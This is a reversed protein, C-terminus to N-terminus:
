QNEPLLISFKGSSSMSASVRIVIEIKDPGQNREKFVPTIDPYIVLWVKAYIPGRVKGVYALTDFNPAVITPVHTYALDMYRGRQGMLIFFVGFEAKVTSYLKRGM